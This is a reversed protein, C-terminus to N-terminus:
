SKRGLMIEYLSRTRNEPSLLSSSSVPVVDPQSEQPPPDFVPMSPTTRPVTVSETVRDVEAWSDEVFQALESPDFLEIGECAPGKPTSVIRGVYIWGNIFVSEPNWRERHETVIDSAHFFIRAGNRKIFGFGRQFELGVIQCAAGVEETGEVLGESLVKVDTAIRAGQGDQARADTPTFEVWTVGVNISNIEDPNFEDMSARYSRDSQILAFVYPYKSGSPNAQLKIVRGIKREVM